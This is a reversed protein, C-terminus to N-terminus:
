ATLAWKGQGLGAGKRHWVFLAPISPSCQGGAGEEAAALAGPLEWVLSLVRGSGGSWWGM